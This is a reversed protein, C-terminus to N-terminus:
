HVFFSWIVPSTIYSQLSKESKAVCYRLNLAFLDLSLPLGDGLDRVVDDQGVEWDQIVRKGFNYRGLIELALPLGGCPKVAEGLIAKGLNSEREVVGLGAKECILDFAPGEPLLEVRHKSESPLPALNAFDRCTFLILSGPSRGECCRLLLDVQRRSNVNDFLM